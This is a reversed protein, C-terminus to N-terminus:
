PVVHGRPPPQAPCVGGSHGGCGPKQTFGTRDSHDRRSAGLGPRHRWRRDSLSGWAPPGPGLPSSPALARGQPNREQLRKRLVSETLEWAAGWYGCRRGEPKVGPHRAPTLSPTGKEPGESMQGWCRDLLSQQHLLPPWLVRLTHGGPLCPGAGPM